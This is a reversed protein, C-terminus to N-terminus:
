YYFMNDYFQPTQAFDARRTEVTDKLKDFPEKKFATESQKQVIYNDIDQQSVDQGGVYTYWLYATILGLVGVLLAMLTFFIVRWRRGFARMVRSGATRAM